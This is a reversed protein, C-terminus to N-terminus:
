QGSYNIRAVIENIKAIIEDTSAATGLPIIQKTGPRAGTILEINEKMTNLVMNLTMDSTGPAPIAPKKTM